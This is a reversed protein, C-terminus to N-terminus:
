KNGYILFKWLRGLRTLELKEMKMDHKANEINHDVYYSM